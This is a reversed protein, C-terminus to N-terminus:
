RGTNTQPSPRRRHRLDVVDRDGDADGPLDYDPAENFRLTGAATIAFRAADAGGDIAFTLANGNPDSATAQYAATTNEAVSATQSSTFSPPANAAPPTGGGGCSALLLPPSPELSACGCPCFGKAIFGGRPCVAM